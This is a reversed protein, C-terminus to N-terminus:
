RRHPSDNSSGGDDAPSSATQGTFRRVLCLWGAPIVWTLGPVLRYYRGAVPAALWPPLALVTTM